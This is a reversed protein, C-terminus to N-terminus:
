QIVLEWGQGHRNNITINIPRVKRRIDMLALALCNDSYEPEHDPKKYLAPLLEAQTIPGAARLLLYYFVAAERETLMIRTDGRTVATNVLIVDGRQACRTMKRYKRGYRNRRIRKDRMFWIKTM